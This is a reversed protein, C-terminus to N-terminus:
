RTQHENFVERAHTDSAPAEYLFYQWSRSPESECHKRDGEPCRTKDAAEAEFIAVATPRWGPVPWEKTLVATGPELHQELGPGLVALGHPNIWMM